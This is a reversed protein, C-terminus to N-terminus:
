DPQAGDFVDEVVGLGAGNIEQVGELEVEEGAFDDDEGGLALEDGQGGVRRHEVDGEGQVGVQAQVAYGALDVM